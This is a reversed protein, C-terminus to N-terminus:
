PVLVCGGQDVTVVAHPAKTIPKGTASYYFTSGKFPNYSVRKSVSPVGQPAFQGVAFAHVDRAKKARARAASPASVQFVVNVLSVSHASGIVEWTGGVKARFSIMNTTLNRYCRLVEGAVPARRGKFSVYGPLGPYLPANM